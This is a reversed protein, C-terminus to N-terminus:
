NSLGTAGQLPRTPAPEDTAPRLTLNRVPSPRGSAGTSCDAVAKCFTIVNCPGSVDVTTCIEEGNANDYCGFCDTAGAPGSLFVAFCGIAGLTFLRLM